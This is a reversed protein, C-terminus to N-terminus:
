KNGEIVKDKADNFNTRVSDVNTNLIIRTYADGAISFIYMWFARLINTENGNKNFYNIFMIKNKDDKNDNIFKTIDAKFTTDNNRMVANYFSTDNGEKAAIFNDISYAVAQPKITEM